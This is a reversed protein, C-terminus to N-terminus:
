GTDVDMDEEGWREILFRIAADAALDAATKGERDAGQELLLRVLEASGGAYAASHLPTGGSAEQARALRRREADDEAAELLLRAVEERGRDCARHLPTHGRRDRAHLDTRLKALLAKVIEVHGKSCAYHLPACGSSNRANPEAGAELLLAVAAAHGASAASHLPEWGEDDARSAAARGAETRLAAELPGAEGKAALWHLATRGDEDRRGWDTSPDASPDRDRDPQEMRTSTLDHETPDDSCLGGKDASAECIGRQYVCERRRYRCCLRPLLPALIM